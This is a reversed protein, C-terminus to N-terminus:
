HRVSYTLKKHTAKDFGETWSTKDVTRRHIRWGDPYDRFGRLVGLREIARRAQEETSFVGATKNRWRGLEPDDHVHYLFYVATM